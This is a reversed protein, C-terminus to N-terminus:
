SESRVIRVLARLGAILGALETTTMAATWRQYRLDFAEAMSQQLERGQQSLRLRYQRYNGPDRTREILGAHQLEAALRSVSSKELRLREALERQSLGNEFALEHLAFAQSLSIPHGAGAEDPQLLGALRALDMFLRHLEAADGGIDAPHPTARPTPKM